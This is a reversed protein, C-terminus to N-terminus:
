AYSVSHMANISFNENKYIRKYLIALTLVQEEIDM